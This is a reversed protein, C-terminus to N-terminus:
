GEQWRGAHSWGREEWLGRNWVMKAAGRATGVSVNCGSVVGDGGACVMSEYVLDGWWDWESCTEYDVVPLLAQQLIDALPGNAAVVALARVECGTGADGEQPGERPCGM